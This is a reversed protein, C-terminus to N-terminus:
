RPWAARLEDVNDKPVGTLRGEGALVGLSKWNPERRQDLAAAIEWAVFRSGFPGAVTRGNTNQVFYGNANPGERGTRERVTHSM